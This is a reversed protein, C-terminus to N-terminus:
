DSIDSPEFSKGSRGTDAPGKMDSTYTPIIFSIGSDRLLYFLAVLQIGSTDERAAVLMSPVSETLRAAEAYTILRSRLEDEQLVEENM